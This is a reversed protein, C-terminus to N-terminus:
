AAKIDMVKLVTLAQRHGKTRRYNKRRKKKFVLVKEDRMQDVVQVTVKAGKIFPTGLTTKAGDGILMVQDLEVTKGSEADLKEVRLTQNKTVKYQKGGTRIVAFM